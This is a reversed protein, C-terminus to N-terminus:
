GFRQELLAKRRRMAESGLGLQTINELRNRAENGTFYSSHASLQELEELVAALVWEIIRPGPPLSDFRPGPALFPEGIDVSQTRDFRDLTDDLAAVAIMRAGFDRAVRALSLLRLRSSDTDCLARLRTFASELACFRDAPSRSTDRSLAYEALATTLDVDGGSAMQQQWLGALVQGYPLKVLTAQWGYRGAAPEVVPGTAPASEVLLGRAALYAAREPKCCFLNLLFPDAPAKPDFPMLLGLGPVLRYSHFGRESFAEVLDLNLASGAMIEYQVLPSTDAFFRAGGRLINLEEGEADVKIFDMSRWNHATAREDLTVLVVRESANGAEAGHTLANMEANDNLSLSSFGAASSLASRELVVHRFDNEAISAALFDATTSAPEFAWVKGNPGVAKGMALTYVGYNAGIDIAQQGPELVRRVFRIEDEFWDGQERLVYPTLLHVSDPVVIRVGDVLSFITRNNM